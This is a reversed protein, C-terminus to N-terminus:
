RTQRPRLLWIRGPEKMLGALREAEAGAGFFIDARVGGLIAAGRDQSLVARALPRGDDPYRTELYLLAGPPVFAPDTAVSRMPTLPVALSGPPGADAPTPLERFFVYRPNSLMVERAQAPHGRLWAKIAPADVEERKLAGRAILEAGIARYPQGNHDAFGVRMTSGDRLRIRGSGQIQLFFAEVPDDLWVLELGDLLRSRELEARAPFPQTAGDVTRFRANGDARMDPPRRHLPVQAPSERVRSGTLIPEHYGTILGIESGDASRLPWAEFRAEIWGRLAATSASATPLQPCLAPWPPPPSRLACQRALADALGDLGDRHWGPLSEVPLAGASPAPLSARPRTAEQTAAPARASAGAAAGQAM